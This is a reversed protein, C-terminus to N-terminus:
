AEPVRTLGFQEQFQDIDVAILDAGLRRWAYGHRDLLDFLELREDIPLLYFELHIVSPHFRDLDVLKLVQLDYGETDIQLIDLAEIGHREMLAAFTVSEVDVSVLNREQRLINRDPCFTSVAHRGAPDSWMKRVGCSDAIAVKDVVVNQRGRHHEELAAFPIPMPEVLLSRWGYKVIWGHMPDTHVGDNAGIQVLQADSHEFRTALASTLTLGFHEFADARLRYRPYSWTPHANAAELMRHRIPGCWSPVEILWPKLAFARDIASQAAPFNGRLLALVGLLYVNEPVKWQKDLLPRLQAEAQNLRGDTMLEVIRRRLVHPDDDPADGDRRVRRLSETLAEIDSDNM